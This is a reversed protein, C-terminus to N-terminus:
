TLTRQTTELTQKTKLKEEKEFHESLRRESQSKVDCFYVYKAQNAM